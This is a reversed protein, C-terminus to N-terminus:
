QLTEEPIASTNLPDNLPAMAAPRTIQVNTDFATDLDIKVRAMVKFTKDDVVEATRPLKDEPADRLDEGWAGAAFTQTLSTLIHAVHASSGDVANLDIEFQVKM